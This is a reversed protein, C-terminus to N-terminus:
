DMIKCAFTTCTLERSNTGNSTVSAIKLILTKTKNKLNVEDSVSPILFFSLIFLKFFQSNYLFIIIRLNHADQIFIRV